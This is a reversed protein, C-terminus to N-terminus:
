DNDRRWMMHESTPENDANLIRELENDPLADVDTYVVPTDVGHQPKAESAAADRACGV